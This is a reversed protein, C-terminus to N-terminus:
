FNHWFFTIIQTLIQTKTVISTKYFKTKKNQKTVIQTEFNQRLKLKRTQDCKSNNLKTAVLNKQTKDCTSNQWLKLQQWFKLKECNSNQTTDGNSNKLKKVKQNKKIKKVM